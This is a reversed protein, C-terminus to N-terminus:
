HAGEAPVILREQDVERRLLVTRRRSWTKSTPTHMPTTISTSHWTASLASRLCAGHREDCVRVILEGLSPHWDLTVDVGASSRRALERRESEGFAGYSSGPSRASKFSKRM